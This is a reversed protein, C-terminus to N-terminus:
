GTTDVVFAFVVAVGVGAVKLKAGVNIKVKKM